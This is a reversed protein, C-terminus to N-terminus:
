IILQELLREITTSDKLTAKMFENLLGIKTPHCIQGGGGGTPKKNIVGFQTFIEEKFKTVKGLFTKSM